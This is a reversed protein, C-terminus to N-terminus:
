HAGDGGRERELSLLHSLGCCRSGHMNSGPKVETTGVWGWRPVVSSPLLYVRVRVISRHDHERCPASRQKEVRFTTVRLGSVFNSDGVTIM